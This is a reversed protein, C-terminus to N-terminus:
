DTARQQLNQAVEQCSWKLPTWRTSNALEQLMPIQETLELTQCGWAAAIRSKAYQPRIEMFSQLLLEKLQHIKRLGILATVFYHVGYDSGRRQFLDRLLISSQQVDMNRLVRMAGYQRAEDRHMLYNEIADATPEPICHQTLKITQPDDQLLQQLLVREEPKPRLANNRTLLQIASKARLPMSVPTTALAGIVSSDGADGLDIVAARRHGAVDSSLQELLPTLSQTDGHVRAKYAHAAGSVLCNESNLVPTLRDFDLQLQLRTFAQIVARRQNDPGELAEALHHQQSADLPGGIKIIADIADVVAIEDKGTLSKILLPLTGAERRRGLAEIAKRRTIKEILDDTNLDLCQILAQLSEASTSAALRSAATYKLGPNGLSNAPKSLLELAVDESMGEFLTDFRESM